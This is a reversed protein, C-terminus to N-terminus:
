ELLSKMAEPETNMQVSPGHKVDQVDNRGHMISLIRCSHTNRAGGGLPSFIERLMVTSSDNVTNKSITESLM